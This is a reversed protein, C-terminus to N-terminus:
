AIAPTAVSKSFAATRLKRLVPLAREYADIQTVNPSSGRLHRCISSQSVGTAKALEMQTMEGMAERLMASFPTAQETDDM